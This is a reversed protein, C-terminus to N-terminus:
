FADDSCWSQESYFFFCFWFFVGARLTDTHMHICNREEIARQDIDMLCPSAFHWASLPPPPPSPPLHYLTSLLLTFLLYLFLFCYQIDTGRASAMRAKCIYKASYQKKQKNINNNTRDHLVDEIRICMENRLPEDISCCVQYFLSGLTNGRQLFLNSHSVLVPSSRYM